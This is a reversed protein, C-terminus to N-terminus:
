IDSKTPLLRRNRDRLRDTEQYLIGAVDSVLGEHGFPINDILEIETEFGKAACQAEIEPFDDDVEPQFLNM